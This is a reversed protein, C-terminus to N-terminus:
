KTMINLLDFIGTNSITGGGCDSMSLDDLEMQETVKNAKNLTYYFSSNAVWKQCDSCSSWSVQSNHTGVRKITGSEVKAYSKEGFIVYVTDGVKTINMDKTTLNTANVDTANLSIFGLFFLIFISWIKVNKYKPM